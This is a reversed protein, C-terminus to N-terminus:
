IGTMFFHAYLLDVIPSTCVSAFFLAFLSFYHLVFHSYSVLQCDYHSVVFFKWAESIIMWVMGYWTSIRLGTVGALCRKEKETVWSISCQLPWVSDSLWACLEQQLWLVNSVGASGYTSAATLCYLFLLGTVTGASADFCTETYFWGYLESLWPVSIAEKDKASQQFQGLDKAEEREVDCCLEIEGIVKKCLFPPSSLPFFCKHMFGGKQRQRWHATSYGAITTHSNGKQKQSCLFM